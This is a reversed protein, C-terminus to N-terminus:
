INGINKKYLYARYAIYEKKVHQIGDAVNFGNYKNDSNRFILIKTEPDIYFNFSDFEVHHNPCLAIINDAKDFESGSQFPKVHAGVVLPESKSNIEQWGCIICKNKCLRIAKISEAKNRSTMTKTYEPQALAVKWKIM